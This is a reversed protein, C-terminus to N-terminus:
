NINKDEFAAYIIMEYEKNLEEGHWPISVSAITNPYISSNWGNYKICFTDYSYEMRVSNSKIDYNFRFSQTKIAKLHSPM